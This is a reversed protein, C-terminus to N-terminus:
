SNLASSRRSLGLCLSKGLEDEAHSMKPLPNNLPRLSKPEAFHAIRIMSIWERRSM